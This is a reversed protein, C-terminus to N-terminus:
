ATPDTAQTSPAGTSEIAPSLGQQLREAEAHHRLEGITHEIRQLREIIDNTVIVAAFVLLGVGLALWPNTGAIMVIGALAAVTALGATM